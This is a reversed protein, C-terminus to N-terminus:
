QSMPENLCFILDVLLSRTVKLNGSHSLVFLDYMTKVIIRACDEFHIHNVFSAKEKCAGM